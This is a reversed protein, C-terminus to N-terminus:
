HSPKPRRRHGTHMLSMNLTDRMTRRSLRIAFAVGAPGAFLYFPSRAGELLKGASMADGLRPAM